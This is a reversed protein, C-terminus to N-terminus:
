VNLVQSLFHEPADYGCIQAMKRNLSLPRGTPGVRFMGVLADDYIARYREEAEGLQLITEEYRVLLQNVTELAEHRSEEIPRTSRRERFPRPRASNSSGKAEEKKYTMAESDPGCSPLPEKALGSTHM